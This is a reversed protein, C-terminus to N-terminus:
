ASKKVRIDTDGAAPAIARRPVSMRNVESHQLKRGTFPLRVTVRTGEGVRSAIDLEGGQLTVLGKVISLGLGTGNQRRGSGRSCQFFPEALRPLDESAVGIGTDEVDILLCSGEARAGVIIRGGRDTYKVANSVLNILIQRFARPDAAIVPLGGDLRLVLELGARRVEVALLDCCSKIAPAPHFSEPALPVERSEIRSADLMADVVSMMHTGSENILQAYSRWRTDDRPMQLENTMVQSFGIIANLPTRLEHSLTALLKANAESAQALEAGVEEVTRQQAKRESIDRTLAIVEREGAPADAPAALLRCRMEVWVYQRAGRAAGRRVRFELSTPNGMAADALAVAYARRDAEHVRDHLGQGLLECAEIGFLVEAAPSAYLVAGSAAHRTMADAMNGTVLRYRDQEARLLALSTRAQSQAAFGIGGVYIAAALAGLATLEQRAQAVPLLSHTELLVLAGAAACAAATAFAVLRPSAALAAELPAIALWLAALVTLGGSAAAMSAGLGILSLASLAQARDFEGTRSLEFAVLMPTALCGFVLVEFGGPVGRLAVYLPLLALAVVSILLRAAIFARHRAATFADAEARAHVLAEVYDRIPKGFGV